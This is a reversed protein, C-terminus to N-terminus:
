GKYNAVFEEIKQLMMTINPQSVYLPSEIEIPLYTNWARDFIGDSHIDKQCLVFIPKKLAIAMGSELHLWGSTYKRHTSESEEQSGEKDKYYYVHSRELGIVIVAKCAEITDRVKGMPDKKDFDNLVCRIPKVGIEKLKECFSTIFEGQEFTHPTISSIFIPFDPEKSKKGVLETPSNRKQFEAAIETDTYRKIIQVINEHVDKADVELSGREVGTDHVLRNRKIRIENCRRHVDALNKRDATSFTKKNSNQERDNGSQVNLNLNRILLNLEEEHDKGDIEFLIDKLLAETFVAAWIISALLEGSDYSQLCKSLHRYTLDTFCAQKQIIETMEM